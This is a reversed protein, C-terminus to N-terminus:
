SNLIQAKRDLLESSLLMEETAELSLREVTQGFREGTKGEAKYLLLSKEIIDMLEDRTFLRAMPTGIRIKKGWGM